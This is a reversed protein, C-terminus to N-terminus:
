LLAPSFKIALLRQVYIITSNSEVDANMIDFAKGSRTCNRALVPHNNFSKTEKIEASM